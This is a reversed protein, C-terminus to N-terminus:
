KRSAVPADSSKYIPHAWRKQVAHVLGPYLTESLYPRRGKGDPKKAAFITSSTRLTVVYPGYRAILIHSMKVDGEGLDGLPTLAQVELAEDGMVPKWTTPTRFERLVDRTVRQFENAGAERTKMDSIAYSLFSGAYVSSMNSLYALRDQEYASHLAVEETPEYKWPARPTKLPYAAPGLLMKSYDLNAYVPAPALNVLLLLSVVYSM